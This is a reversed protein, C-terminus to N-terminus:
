YNLGMGIGFGDLFMQDSDTFNEGMRTALPMGTWYQGEWTGRVAFEAGCRMQRSYQLGLLVEGIYLGSSRDDISFTGAGPDLVFVDSEGVMASVRTNAVLSLGNGGLKRNLGAAFTAGWGEFESSVGYDDIAVNGPDFTLSYLRSEIDAWRVGAAFNFTTRRLEVRQTAEFDLTQLKLDTAVTMRDGVAGIATTAVFLGESISRQVFDTSGGDDVATEM